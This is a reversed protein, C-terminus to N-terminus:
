FEVKAPHVYNNLDIKINGQKFNITSAKLLQKTTLPMHPDTVYLYLGYKFNFVIGDHTENVEILDKRDVSVKVGLKSITIESM